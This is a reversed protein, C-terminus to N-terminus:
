GILSRVTDLLNSQDFAGKVIYANAGVRIGRKKDEEKERSTVIIIPVNSYQRDNRLTETLTFGDMKPMEVDTVILDYHDHRTKEIAEEGDGATVVVYGYAELISKEIERTNFSDDVVLITTDRDKQEAPPRQGSVTVHRAARLLEPGHFVNIIGDEAGITVGSVMKLNRLHFPLPKVVMEERGIIGDVILGLRENGDQLIVMLEESNDDDSTVPLNVLAAMREM